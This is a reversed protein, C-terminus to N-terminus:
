CVPLASPSVVPVQKGSEARAETDEVRTRSGMLMSGSYRRCAPNGKRGFSKGNQWVGMNRGLIQESSVHESIGVRAVGSFAAVGLM